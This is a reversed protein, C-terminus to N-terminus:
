ILKWKKEIRNINELLNTLPLPMEGLKSGRDKLSLLQFNLLSDKTSTDLFSIIRQFQLHKQLLDFYSLAKPYIKKDKLSDPNVALMETFKEHENYETIIIERVDKLLQKRENFLLKKKEIGWKIWPAILSAIAGSVFGAIAGIIAVLITNEM